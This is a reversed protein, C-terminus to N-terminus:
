RYKNYCEKLKLEILDVTRKPDDCLKQYLQKHTKINNLIELDLSSINTHYNIDDELVTNIESGFIYNPTLNLVETLKKLKEMKPQEKGREYYSIATKSVGIMNGLEEQTLGQKIREEKIRSGIIM